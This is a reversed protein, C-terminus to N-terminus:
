EDVAEWDVPHGNKCVDRKVLWGKQVHNCKGSHIGVSEGCIGCTYHFAGSPSNYARKPKVRDEDLEYLTIQWM